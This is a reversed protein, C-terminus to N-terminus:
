SEDSSGAIGRAWHELRAWLLERTGAFNHMHAMRPVVYVTVDTSNAYARPEARPDPCVDREGVGVFVPVRVAAAEAAVAGPSMMTVACPPITASGFPPVPARRLPYGGGIDARLIDPPVDEWHFPYVFDAISRSSRAVSESDVASGRARMHGRVAAYRAAADRQPLKTHIASAGLVGIADFTGRRGQALMTVKGGMSQGIGIRTLSAISPLGPVLTGSVIRRCIERVTSDYTDGLMAFDIAAAEPLSSSGVGIPDCTVFILGHEQHYRAQSYGAHQPFHMDFYGRSYGGGPVAFIATARTMNSRGSPVFATAAIQLPPPAGAAATSVDIRLEYVGSTDSSTM